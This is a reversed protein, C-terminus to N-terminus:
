KKLERKIHLTAQHNFEYVGIKERNKDEPIGDIDESTVYYVSDRDEERTVFLQKPFKAKMSEEMADM